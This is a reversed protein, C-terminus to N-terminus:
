SCIVVHPCLGKNTEDKLDTVNLFNILKLESAKNSIFQAYSSSLYKQYGRDGTLYTQMFSLSIAQLYNQYIKLRSNELDASTHGIKEILLLHKSETELWTFPVIQETFAPTIFDESSAVIATPINITNLGQRTFITSTIPNITFIAEIRPDSLKNSESIPLTVALCQLTLSLNDLKPKFKDTSCNQEISELNLEAGGLALATYGGFSHGIVGVKQLNFRSYRSNNSRMRSLEDLIFSIDQPRNIFERVAILEPEIGKIYNEVQLRDSGPHNVIIVGFGHSALHKALYAFNDGDAGLGPSVVILPISRNTQPYYLETKLFRDRQSDEFTLAEQKWTFKGSKRIDPQQSFDIKPESKIALDSQQEIAAIAEQTQELSRAFTSILKITDEGNIYLTKSPFHNLFNILNLGDPEDAALILASRLSYFGNQTLSPQILEGLNRLISEGISTNLFRYITVKDINLSVTLIDRLEQSEQPSISQLYYDLKRDIKGTKVYNDLSSFPLSFEFMSYRFSIKEAASIAPSRTMGFFSYIITLLFYNFISKKM